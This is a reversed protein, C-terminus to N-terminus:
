ELTDVLLYMNCRCVSAGGVHLLVGLGHPTVAGRQIVREPFFSGMGMCPISMRGWQGRVDSIVVGRYLMM